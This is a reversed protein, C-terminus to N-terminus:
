ANFGGFDAREISEEAGKRREWVIGLLRWVRGKSLQQRAQPCPMGPIPLVWDGPFKIPFFDLLSILHRQRVLKIQPEASLIINLGPM